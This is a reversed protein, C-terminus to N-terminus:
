LSDGLDKNKLIGRYATITFYVQLLTSFILPTSSFVGVMVGCLVIINLPNSIVWLTFGTRRLHHKESSVAWSGACSLCFGIAALLFGLAEIM